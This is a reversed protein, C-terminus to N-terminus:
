SKSFTNNSNTGSEETRWQSFSQNEAAYQSLSTYLPDKPLEESTLKMRNGCHTNQSCVYFTLYVQRGAFVSETGGHGDIFLLRGAKDLTLAGFQLSQITFAGEESVLAM